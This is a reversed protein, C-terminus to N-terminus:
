IVLYKDSRLALAAYQPAFENLKVVQIFFVREGRLDDSAHSQANDYRRVAATVVKCDNSLDETPNQLTLGNQIAATVVERDAKLAEFAHFIACGDNQVWGLIIKRNNKLKKSTYV